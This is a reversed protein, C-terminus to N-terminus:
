RGAAGAAAGVVVTQVSQPTIPEGTARDILLPDLPRRTRRSLAVTTQDRRAWRNGWAMLTMLVPYFDRGKDTLRYEHRPPRESYPKTELLGAEVLRKLRRSLMNRAIGLSAQFEDFRRVGRFADRLILISWWEGVLDITRAIPCRADALSKHRM